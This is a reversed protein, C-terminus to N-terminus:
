IRLGDGEQPRPVFGEEDFGHAQALLISGLDLDQDAELTFPDTGRVRLQDGLQRRVLMHIEEDPGDVM